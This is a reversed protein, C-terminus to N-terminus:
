RRRRKRKLKMYFIWGMTILGTILTLVTLAPIFATVMTTFFMTELVQQSLLIM